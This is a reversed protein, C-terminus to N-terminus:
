GEEVGDEWDLEMIELVSMWWSHVRLVDRWGIRNFVKISVGGDGSKRLTEFGEGLM